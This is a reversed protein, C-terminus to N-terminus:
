RVVHQSVRAPKLRQSLRCTQLPATANEYRRLLVYCVSSANLVMSVTKKHKHAHFNKKSTIHTQTWDWCWPNSERGGWVSWVETWGWWWPNIENEESLKGCVELGLIVPKIGANRSNRCRKNSEWSWRNRCTTWGLLMLSIYHTQNGCLELGFMVPQSRM